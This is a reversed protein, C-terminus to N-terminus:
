SKEMIKWKGGKTGPMRKMGHDEKRTQEIEYQEMRQKNQEM